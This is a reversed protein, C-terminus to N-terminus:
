FADAESSGHESPERCDGQTALKGIQRSIRTSKGDLEVCSLAVIVDNAQVEYTDRYNRALSLQQDNSAQKRKGRDWGLAPHSGSETGCDSSNRVQGCSM